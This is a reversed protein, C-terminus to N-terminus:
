KDLLIPAVGTANEFRRLIVSCFKPDLEMCLARRKTKEAAMIATGSGAFPDYIWEGEKTHYTIPRLYLEVPKQTPHPTSDKETQVTQVDWVTMKDRGGYWARKTNNRVCYFCPEHKWHYDSRSLAHINKNWIIQQRVEFGADILNQKFVDQFAFPHWVYATSGPFLVYAAYWNANDDNELSSVEERKSPKTGKREARWKADYKVGYPPDTVMLNPNDGLSLLRKVHEVNTADGCMLYHDGVQWIDGQVAKDDLEGDEPLENDQEEEDFCKVPKFNLIEDESFGTLSTDYEDDELSKIEALLMDYDWGANLSLKNDAIVYAKKQQPTLGKLIIVPVEKLGVKVAADLRCHGAIIINDEDILIPNTFGFENISRVVQDIQEESHTRSNNEYKQLTVPNVRAYEYLEKM